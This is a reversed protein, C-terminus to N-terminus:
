NGGVPSSGADGRVQYPAPSTFRVRMTLKPFACIPPRWAASCGSPAGRRARTSRTRVAWTAWRQGAGITTRHACVAGSSKSGDRPEGQDALDHDIARHRVGVGRSAVTWTSRTEGLVIAAIPSRIAVVFPISFMPVALVTRWTRLRIAEDCMEDRLLRRDRSAWLWLACFAVSAFLLNGAYLLAAARRDSYDGNQLTDGLVRTPFPLVSVVLLLLLNLLVLGHDVGRLRSFIAHHNLCVIGINTFSLLYSIYIPWQEWLRDALSGSGSGADLQLVLLTIAIALVADSFSEVRSATLGYVPAPDEIWRRSELDLRASVSGESGGEPPMTAM